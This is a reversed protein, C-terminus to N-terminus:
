GGDLIDNLAAVELKGHGVREEHVSGEGEACGMELVKQREGGVGSLVTLVSKGFSIVPLTCRMQETFFQIGWEAKAKV